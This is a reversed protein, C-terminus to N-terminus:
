SALQSIELFYIEMAQDVDFNTSKSKHDIELLNNTIKSLNIKSIRDSFNKFGNLSSLNLKSLRSLESVNKNSSKLISIAYIAWTFTAIIKLYPENLLRLNRYINIAEKPKKNFVFRILNFINADISLDCLLNINDVSINKNYTVLKDIETSLRQKDVSVNDRLYKATNLNIDGGIDKAYRQIWNVLNFNKNSDFIVLNTKEKIDKSLKTKNDLKNFILYVENNISEHNILREIFDSVRATLDTVHLLYLSSSSFMTSSLIKDLLNVLSNDDVFIKVISLLGNEKSFDEETKSLYKKLEFFDDGILTTIM